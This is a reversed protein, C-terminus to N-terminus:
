RLLTGVAWISATTVRKESALRRAGTISTPSGDKSGYFEHNGPAPHTRNKFRGWTKDYCNKFEEATGNEYALDGAAFV